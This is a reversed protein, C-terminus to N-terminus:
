LKAWCKKNPQKSNLGPLINLHRLDAVSDRLFRPFIDTLRPMLKMRFISPILASFGMDSGKKLSSVGFGLDHNM